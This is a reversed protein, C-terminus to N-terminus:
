KKNEEPFLRHRLDNELEALHNPNYSFDERVM